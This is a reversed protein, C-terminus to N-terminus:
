GVATSRAFRAEYGAREITAQGAFHTSTIGGRNQWWAALLPILTSHLTSDDLLLVGPQQGPAHQPPVPHRLL